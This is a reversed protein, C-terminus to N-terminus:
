LDSTLLYNFQCLYHWVDGDPGKDPDLDTISPGPRLYILVGEACALEADALSARAARGLARAADRTGAYASLRFTGEATVPVGDGDSSEFEEAQDDELVEVFPLAADPPAQQNHVGGTALGAVTADAELHLCVADILDLASPAVSALGMLANFRVRRYRGRNYRTDM